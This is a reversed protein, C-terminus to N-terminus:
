GNVAHRVIRSPLWYNGPLTSAQGNVAHLATAPGEHRMIRSPLWNIALNYAQKAKLNCLEVRYGNSKSPVTSVLGCDACKGLLCVIGLCAVPKHFVYM